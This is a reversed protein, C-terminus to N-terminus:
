PGCHNRPQEDEAFERNSSWVSNKWYNEWWGQVVYLTRVMNTQTPQIIHDMEMPMRMLAETRLCYGCLYRAERSIREKLTAPTYPAM